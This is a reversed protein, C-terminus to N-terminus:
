FAGVLGVGDPGATPTLTVAGGESKTDLLLLAVGAALAVAGVSYGVVATTYESDSQDEIENLETLPTEGGDRAAQYDDATTVAFANYALGVGLGVAGLGIAGWGWPALRGGESSAQAGAAGGVPNLKLVVEQQQGARLTVSQQTPEHGALGAQLAHPGPLLRLTTPAEGRPQDDVTLRAGPPASDITLSVLCTEEIKQKRESAAAANPCLQVGCVTFYRGFAELAEACHGGWSHYAIAINLVFRPESNLAYASEMADIGAKWERARFHLNGKTYLADAREARTDAAHATPTTLLTTALLLGLPASRLTSGM